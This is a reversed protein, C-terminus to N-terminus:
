GARRCRRTARISGGVSEQHDRTRGGDSAVLSRRVVLSRSRRTGRGRRTGDHARRQRTHWGVLGALQALGRRQRFPEVRVVLAPHGLALRARDRHHDPSAVVRRRGIVHLGPQPGAEVLHDGREVCGPVLRELVVHVIVESRDGVVVVGMRSGPTARPGPVPRRRTSSSRRRCDFPHMGGIEERM